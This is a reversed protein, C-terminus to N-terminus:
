AQGVDDDINVPSFDDEDDIDIEGFREEYRELNNALALVLRKAHEPALIVRSNVSAKPVGPMVSVFDVVFETPSYNIVALNAYVGKAIEANLQIDLKEESTDKDEFDM